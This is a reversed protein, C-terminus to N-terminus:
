DHRLANLPDVRTARRAPLYCAAAGVAMVVAAVVVFVSPSSATAGFVMNAVVRKLAWTGALGIAVGTAVLLMGNRLVMSLVDRQQAGLAMRIGIDRTQLSVTYAMVSFVGIVVLALGIIGFAAFVAFEFKPFAFVDRELAAEITQPNVVSLNSDEAWVTQRIASIMADPQIATRVLIVSGGSAIVTYPVFAEPAPTQRIGRNKLDSVVGVIQFPAGKLDPFEDFIKLSIQQGIPDSDAFYKTAFAQTVVAMHKASDMDGRSFVRGRLLRLQMTDFYGESCLDFMSTWDESHPKGLIDINTSNGGFPPISISISAAVVGPLNQVRDFVRRFILGQEEATHQVGRPFALQMSLIRSPDFGFDLNVTQWFARMTLGAGVLLVISIAVEAIVL